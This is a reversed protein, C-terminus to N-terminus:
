TFCEIRDKKKLIPTENHYVVDGSDGYIMDTSSFLYYVYIFDKESIITGEYSYMVNHEETDVVNFADIGYKIEIRDKIIKGIEINPYKFLKDNKSFHLVGERFGYSGIREVVDLLKYEKM